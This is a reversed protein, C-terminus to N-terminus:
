RAHALKGLDLRDRAVVEAPGLQQRVADGSVLEIEMERLSRAAPEWLVPVRLKALAPLLANATSSTVVLDPQYAAVAEANPRYGSLKTM